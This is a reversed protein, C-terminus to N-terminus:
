QKTKFGSVAKSGSGLLFHITSVPKRLYTRYTGYMRYTGTTTLSLQIQVRKTHSPEHLFSAQELKSYDHDPKKPCNVPQPVQNSDPDLMFNLKIFTLSLFSFGVKQSITRSIVTFLCSKTCNTTPFSSYIAQIRIRLRVLVKGFDSGSRCYIM